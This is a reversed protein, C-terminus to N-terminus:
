VRERVCERVRECVFACLRVCAGTEEERLYGVLCKEMIFDVNVWAHFKDFLKTGDKGAVQM